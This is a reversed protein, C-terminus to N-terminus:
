PVSNRNTPNELFLDLERRILSLKLVKAEEFMFEIHEIFRVAADFGIVKLVVWEKTVKVDPRDDLNFLQQKESYSLVYIGVPFCNCKRESMYNLDFKLLKLILM